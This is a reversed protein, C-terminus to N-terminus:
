FPHEPLVTRVFSQAEQLDLMGSQNKSEDFKRWTREFKKNRDLFQRSKSEGGDDLLDYGEWKSVVDAM